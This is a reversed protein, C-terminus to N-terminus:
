HLKTWKEWYVKSQMEYLRSITRDFAFLEEEGTFVNAGADKMIVLLLVGTCFINIATLHYSQLQQTSCIQEIRNDNLFIYQLKSM